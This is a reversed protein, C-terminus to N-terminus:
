VKIFTEAKHHTAFLFSKCYSTSNVFFDDYTYFLCSISIKKKFIVTIQRTWYIDHLGLSFLESCLGRDINTCMEKVFSCLKRM